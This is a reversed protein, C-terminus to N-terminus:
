NDQNEMHQADAAVREFAVVKAPQFGGDPGQARALIASALLCCSLIALPKNM